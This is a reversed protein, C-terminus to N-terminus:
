GTVEPFGLSCIFAMSVLISTLDFFVSFMVCLKFDFTLYFFFFFVFFSLIWFLFHPLLRTLTVSTFVFLGFWTASNYSTQIITCCNNSKQSSQHKKEVREREEKETTAVEPKKRGAWIISCHESNPYCWRCVFGILFETRDKKPWWIFEAALCLLPSVSLCCSLRM